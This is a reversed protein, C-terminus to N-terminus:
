KVPIKKRTMVLEGQDNYCNNEIWHAILKKNKDFIFQEKASIILYIEELYGNKYYKIGKRPYKNGGITYGISELKGYADYYFCIKKNSKYSVSYSNDSYSTLKYKKTYFVGNEISNKNQLYNTDIFYKKYISTDIKYELNNFAINRAENVSYSIGGNITLSFVPLIIILYIFFMLLFRM